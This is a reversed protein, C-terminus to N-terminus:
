DCQGTLRAMVDDRWENHTMLLKRRAYDYKEARRQLARIERDLDADVEGTPGARRQMRRRLAPSYVQLLWDDASVFLQCSGPDGQRASRGMLQRDIRSSAHPECVIVYLGGREAAGPGLKIDTGRGAMNTAITVADVQGAASIIQAESEDQKGNLLRYPTGQQDLLRAVRQSDEITRTGVLVPQGRRHAQKVTGAIAQWKSPGDRFYRSPLRTRRSAFRLPIVLAPLRFGQWLEAECGTITGSMGCVGEYLGLYQQRSIRALPRQEATVTVREKVQVAQQLGETWSRDGFIRGTHQDILQITDDRVIYDIDCHVLLRAHLAQRVYDLWPRRLAGPMSDRARLSAEVRTRGRATFQIQRTTTDARFDKDRSLRDAAEAAAVYVAVDEARTPGESLVLPTVAEDILVSDVEDIVAFAHGRQLSGVDTELGAHYRSTQRSRESSKRVAPGMLAVQDRLYDFGFEYGPGYTIDAAYARRKEAHPATARLVGTTLGLMRFLPSLMRHDRQALYSNVTMVHVGRECLAFVFAPLAAVFTKGEGTQMETVARRALSLGALLQVDYYEVGLCRRAAEYVLAFATLVSEGLPPQTEHRWSRRLGDARRRLAADPVKRFSRGIERIRAVADHDGAPPVLARPLIFHWSTPLTDLQTM